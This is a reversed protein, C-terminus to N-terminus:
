IENMAILQRYALEAAERFEAENICGEGVITPDDEFEDAGYFLDNLIEYLDEGGWRKDNKYMELYAFMFDLAALENNLFQGILNLYDAIIESKM